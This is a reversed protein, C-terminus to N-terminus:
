ISTLGLVRSRLRFTHRSFPVEIVGRLLWAEAHNAQQRLIEGCIVQARHLQGQRALDFAQRLAAASDPHSAIM